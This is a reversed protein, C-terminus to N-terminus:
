TNLLMLTLPRVYRASFDASLNSTNKVFVIVHRFMLNQKHINSLERDEMGCSQYM